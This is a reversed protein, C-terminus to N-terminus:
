PQPEAGAEIALKRLSQVTRRLVPVAPWDPPLLLWLHERLPTRQPLPHLGAFAGAADALLLAPVPTALEAATMRRRWAAPDQLAAPAAELMLGQGGLLGRLGPALPAPPVLVRPPWPAAATEASVAALTLPWHGLHLREPERAAPQRGSGLQPSPAASAPDRGTRPPELELSSVLAADIVAERVLDLWAEGSRFRQPM